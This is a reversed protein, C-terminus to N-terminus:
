TLTIKAGYGPSWKGPSIRPLLRMCCPLQRTQSESSDLLAEALLLTCVQTDPWREHYYAALSRLMQSNAHNSKMRAHMIKLHTANVLPCNTEEVLAAHM